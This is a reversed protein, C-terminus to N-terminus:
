GGMGSATIAGADALKLEDAFTKDICSMGAGTDLIWWGADQRNLMTKVLLHGTTTRRVELEPKASAAFSSRKPMIRSAEAAEDDAQAFSVSVCCFLTLATVLLRKLM